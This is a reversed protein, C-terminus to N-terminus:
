ASSGELVPNFHKTMIVVKGRPILYKKLAKGIISESLGNSYTDATDWTNIGCDYAKEEAATLIKRFHGRVVRRILIEL